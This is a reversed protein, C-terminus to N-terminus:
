ILQGMVNVQNVIIFTSWFILLVISCIYMSQSLMKFAFSINERRTFKFVLSTIMFVFGIVLSIMSILGIYYISKIDYNGVIQM